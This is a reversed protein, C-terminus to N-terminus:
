YQLDLLDQLPHVGAIWSRREMQEIEEMTMTSGMEALEYCVPFDPEHKLRFSGDNSMIAHERQRYERVITLALASSNQLFHRESNEYKPHLKPLRIELSLRSHDHLLSALPNLVARENVMSWTCTDEHDLRLRLKQLKGLRAIVQPLCAWTSILGPQSCEARVVDELTAYTALSLRFNIYLEKLLPSIYTMLNMNSTQGSELINPAVTDELFRLSQFDNLQIAVRDALADAFDACRNPLDTPFINM